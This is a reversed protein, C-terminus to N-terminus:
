MLLKTRLAQFDADTLGVKQKLYGEAGGYKQDLYVFFQALHSQGSPTYLPEAKSQGGGKAQSAAIYQAMVNGPYDEAKIPPMEAVTRRFGTSLHYDKLITERDVGLVEYIMATVVGTRDQGASCHYVVAGDDALLRRFTARMQPVLTDETGQYMNEGGGSAFKALMPKMSYDNSVFLAGTRDDLQDPAIEREELSRLDVVTGFGLKGLFSYDSETLMPMAGSRFAKGWRVTKGDKTQYGGLDRFNSAMELPLLREGVVHPADKGRQVIVFDRETKPLYVELRKAKSDRAVVVDSTDLTTDKSFWFTAPTADDRVVVVTKDDKREMRLPEAALASTALASGLLLSTVTLRIFKM